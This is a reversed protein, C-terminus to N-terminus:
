ATSLISELLSCNATRCLKRIEEVRAVARRCLRGAAQRHKIGMEQAVQSQTKGEVAYLQYARAQRDTILAHAAEPM